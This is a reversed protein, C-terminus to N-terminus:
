WVWGLALEAQGGWPSSAFVVADDLRVQVRSLSLQPGISVSAVLQAHLHLSAFVKAGVSVLPVTGARPVAIQRGSARMWEIGGELCGGWRWRRRPSLLCSHLEVGLIPQLEFADPLEPLAVSTPLGGRVRVGARGWENDLTLLAAARPSLRPATGLVGLASLWLGVRWPSAPANHIQSTTVEEVTVPGGVPADEGLKLVLMAAQAASQCSDCLLTRTGPKEGGFRVELKWRDSHPTAVITVPVARRVGPDPACPVAWSVPLSNLFMAAWLAYV